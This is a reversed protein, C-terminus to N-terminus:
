EVPLQAIGPRAVHNSAANILHMLLQERLRCTAEWESCAEPLCTLPFRVHVHLRFADAEGPMLFVPSKWIADTLKVRGDGAGKELDAALGALTTDEKEEGLKALEARVKEIREARSDKQRKATEPIVVGFLFTIPGRNSQAYDCAAGIRVLVPKCAEISASRVRFEECLMQKITLGTMGKFHVDDWAFPWAIVAGWDTAALMESSPLSLHLM